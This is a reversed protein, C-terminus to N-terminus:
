QKGVAGRGRERDDSIAGHWRLAAFVLNPAATLPTLGLAAVASTLTGALDYVYRELLFVQSAYPWIGEPTPLVQITRLDLPGLLEKVQPIENTKHAVDRQAVMYGTGHVLASLLHVARGAAQWAGRASKGDVSLAGALPV